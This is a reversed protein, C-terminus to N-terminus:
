RGSDPSYNILSWVRKEDRATMRGPNIGVLYCQDIGTLQNPNEPVITMSEQFICTFFLASVTYYCACIARVRKFSNLGKVMSGSRM